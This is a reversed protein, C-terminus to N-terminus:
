VSLARLRERIDGQIPKDQDMVVWYGLEVALKLGVLVLVAVLPQGIAMMLVASVIITVHLVVIRAYPKFMEEQPLADRYAGSLVFEIVMRLLLGAGLLVTGLM